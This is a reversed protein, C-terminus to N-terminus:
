YTWRFSKAHDFVRIFIFYGLAFWLISVICLIGFNGANLSTNLISVGASLPNTCAVWDPVTILIGSVALLVYNLISEFSAVKTYILTM